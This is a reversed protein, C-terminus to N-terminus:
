LGSANELDVRRGKWTVGRGMAGRLQGRAAIMFYMLLGVSMLVSLRGPLLYYVSLHGRWFWLSAGYWILSVMMAIIVVGGGFLYSAIMSMLFVVPPWLTTMCTEVFGVLTRAPNTTTGSYANKTFGEVIEMFSQYMRVRLHEQANVVCYRFGSRRLTQALHVDELLSAKVAAHGGISEYVTRKVLICQGNAATLDPPSEPNSLNTLPFVTAVLHSFTPIVLKEGLTGLEQFPWVSCADLDNAVANTIMAEALLPQPATDADLFMLWDGTASSAGHACANCKGVWGAPLPRGQLVKMSRGPYGSTTRLLGALIDPTADSSGDDVVIVEVDRDGQQALCGQVSRKINRAENRAPIILSISAHRDAACMSPSGLSTVSPLCPFQQYRRADRVILLIGVTAFLLVSVLIFIGLVVDTYDADM